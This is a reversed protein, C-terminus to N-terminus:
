EDEEEIEMFLRLNPDRGKELFFELSEDYIWKDKTMWDKFRDMQKAIGALNQYKETDHSLQSLKHGLAERPTLGFDNQVQMFPETVASMFFDLVDKSGAKAAAHLPTDGKFDRNLM